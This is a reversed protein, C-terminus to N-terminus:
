TGSPIYGKLLNSIKERNPFESSERASYAIQSYSSKLFYEWKEFHIIENSSNSYSGILVVKLGGPIKAREITDVKFDKIGALLRPLQQTSNLREKYEQDSEPPMEVHSLQKELLVLTAGTADIGKWVRAGPLSSQEEFGQPAKFAASGQSPITGQASRSKLSTITIALAGVLGLVAIFSKLNLQPKM